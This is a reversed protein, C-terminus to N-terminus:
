AILAEVIDKYGLEAAYHLATNSDNDRKDICVGASLLILCNELKNSKVAIHLPTDGFDTLANIDTRPNNVLRSIIQISPNM